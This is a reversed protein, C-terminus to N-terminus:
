GVEVLRHAFAQMNKRSGLIGHIMVVTPPARQGKQVESWRALAGQVLEYGQLAATCCQWPRHPCGAAAAVSSCPAAWSPATCRLRLRSPSRGRM